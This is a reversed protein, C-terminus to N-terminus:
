HTWMILIHIIKKEEDVTYVLRHKLNIRRSYASRLDWTLKEFSPPSQFPNKEIVSLLYNVKEDLKSQKIKSIQKVALRSFILEYM